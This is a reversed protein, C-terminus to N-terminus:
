QFQDELDLDEVIQRWESPMLKIKSAQNLAALSKAIREQKGEATFRRSKAEELKARSVQRRVAARADIQGGEKQSYSAVSPKDLRRPANILFKEHIHPSEVANWLRLTARLQKPFQVLWPDIREHDQGCYQALMDRM